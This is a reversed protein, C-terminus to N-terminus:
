RAGAKIQQLARDIVQANGYSDKFDLLLEARGAIAEGFHEIMLQFQDVPQFRLQKAKDRRTLLLETEFHKASFARDLFIRGESGSIELTSQFQLEFSCTLLAQRNGPFSCLLSTTLDIGTRDDLHAIAEIKEPEAQFVLRAANIAYCGVDYLAGGGMEPFWRYNSPDRNFVFAFVARVLRPQGIAGSRILEVTKELRPHFRYMFGEMLLRNNKRAEAFMEEVQAATLALPKECLVHKGARLAALTLPHHLHNPLPNYVAEIEPDSLLDEYSGYARKLEFKEAWARAKNLDRSAIALLEANRAKKIAPIFTTEAISAGGLIGWRIKEMM